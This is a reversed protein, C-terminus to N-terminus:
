GHGDSSLFTIGNGDSQDGKEQRQDGVKEQQDENIRHHTILIGDM